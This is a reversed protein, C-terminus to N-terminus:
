NLAVGVVIQSSPTRTPSGSLDVGKATYYSALKNLQGSVGERAQIVTKLANYSDIDYTETLGEPLDDFEEDTLSESGIFSLVDNLFTRLM